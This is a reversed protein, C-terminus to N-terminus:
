AYFHQQAPEVMKFFVIVKSYSKNINKKCNYAYNNLFFSSTVVGRFDQELEGISVGPGHNGAENEIFICSIVELTQRSVDRNLNLFISGGRYASNKKFYCNFITLNETMAYIAGGDEHQIYPKTTFSTKSMEMYQNDVWEDYLGTNNFFYSDLLFIIFYYSFTM